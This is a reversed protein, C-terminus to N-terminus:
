SSRAPRSTSATGGDTYSDLSAAASAIFAISGANNQVASGFEDFEVTAGGALTTDIEACAIAADVRRRVVFIGAPSRAVLSRPASRSTATPTSRLASLSAFQGGCTPAPRGPPGGSRRERSARSSAAGPGASLRAAFAITGAANVSPTSPKAFIGGGPAAQGRRALVAVAGVAGVASRVFIGSWRGEGPRGLHCRPRRRQDGAGRVATLDGRWRGLRGESCRAHQVHLRGTGNRRSQGARPHARRHRRPPRARCRRGACGIRDTASRGAFEM